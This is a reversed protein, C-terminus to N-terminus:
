IRQFWHSGSFLETHNTACIPCYGIRCYDPLVLDPSSLDGLLTPTLVGTVHDLLYLIVCFRNRLVFGNEGKRPVRPGGCSCATKLLLDSGISKKPMKGLVRLCARHGSETSLNDLDWKQLKTLSGNNELSPDTQAFGAHSCAVLRSFGFCHVRLYCRLTNGKRDFIRKLCVLM